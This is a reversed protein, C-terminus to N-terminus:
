RCRKLLKDVSDDTAVDDFFGELFNLAKDAAKPDLGPTERVAAELQPRRARFDAAAAKVDANLACSSRYYRTRVSNIGIKEPAVAYPADVYGSYDFDYPVYVLGQSATKEAGLLKGNHCCEGDPGEVMSWDHNAIMHFFLITRAAAAPDHQTITLMGAKVDKLGVRDAVDDIDEIFFGPREAVLKGSKEEVYRVNAMRVRFSQETLANLMRYASYELLLHKEFGNTSRCHTVLKLKEQKQFLSGKAPKEIFTVRLPPFKCTEPRRRSNGRAGLNIAYDDGAYTLTAPRPETSTAAKRAIEGIPGTITIEIPDLASFLPAPESAHASAAALSAAVFLVIARM